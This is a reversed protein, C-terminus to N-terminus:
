RRRLLLQAGVADAFLVALRGPHVDSFLENLQAEDFLADSLVGDNAEIISAPLHKRPSSRTSSTCNSARGSAGASAGDRDLDVRSAM